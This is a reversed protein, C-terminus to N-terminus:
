GAVYDSDALWPRYSGVNKRKNLLRWRRDGESKNKRSYKLALGLIKPSLKHRKGILVKEEKKVFLWLAM